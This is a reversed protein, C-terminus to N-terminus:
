QNARRLLLNVRFILVSPWGTVIPGGCATVASACITISAPARARLSCEAGSTRVPATRFNRESKGGTPVVARMIIL